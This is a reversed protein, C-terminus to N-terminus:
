IHQDCQLTDCMIALTPQLFRYQYGSNTDRTENAVHILDIM